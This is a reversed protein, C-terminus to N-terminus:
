SAQGCIELDMTGDITDAIAERIAPHDDVIFVRIHDNSRNTAAM